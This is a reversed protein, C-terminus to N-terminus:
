RLQGGSPTQNTARKREGEEGEGEGEGEGGGERGRRRERERGRRRGRERKREWTISSIDVNRSTLWDSILSATLLSLHSQIAAM